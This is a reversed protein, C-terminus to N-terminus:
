ANFDRMQERAAIVADLRAAGARLTDLNELEGRHVEAGAALLSRAWAVSRTLGLVHHGAGILDRVLRLWYLGHRGDPFAGPM